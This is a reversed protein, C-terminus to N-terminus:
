MAVNTYPCLASQEATPCPSSTNPGPMCDFYEPCNGLSEECGCGCQNAFPWTNAPCADAACSGAALYHRWWEGSPNCICGRGTSSVMDNGLCQLSNCREEDFMCSGTPYTRGYYLCGPTTPDLSSPYPNYLVCTAGAQGGVSSGGAAVTGGVKSTAGGAALSGGAVGGGINSATGGVLSAATAGGMATGGGVNVTAGGVSSVATTGGMATGGGVNVTTGGVPITGEPAITIGGSCAMATLTSVSLGILIRNPCDM